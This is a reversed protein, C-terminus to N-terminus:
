FKLNVNFGFSRTSPLQGFEQGQEGNGSSFASEPDIHPANRYLMALNKAVFSINADQIFTNKLISKPLKYSLSLSRWKVYSADFVSSEDVSNGYVAQNYEKSSVVVNNAIYEPSEATGVNIVGEGVLGNERGLLTEELVGAYRGWANTMSHIDGGKKIDILTSLTFGKYNVTFNAGGTWDAQVNGLVRTGDAIVPTGNEYIIEGAASREFGRGVIDGYANGTRAELNVGWQGGLVLADLGGLSEVENNNKAFNLDIDFTLDNTKLVTMGLMLEVGQNRMEGVNDWTADFGSSASVNVPVLLDKSLQNYYTADLRLRNNFMRLDMGFELGTTTESKLNPNGLTNPSEILPVTGFPTDRFEYTRSLQYPTLAGTSGVKSWGGRVKLFSVKQATLDVMDSVVAGLTVSPYFFSNNEDSLLTTWDNRVTYDLFLYNKYAFQGFGFVSNIKQETKLNSVKPSVGSKVNALSYFGDLELQEAEGYMRAYKRSLHNVGLNVSFTLDENIDKNISTLFEANLENYRRMTESYFGEKWENSNKAKRVTEKQSYHDNSVKGKMLLWDNVKYALNFAGVVRDKSFGNLNTNLVWYPNNQFVTNWNLPTGGAITGEPSLPLNKYDKLAKFDVNRGSWIMQQVPNENNYGGTPLNDSEMRTYNFTISATLKENFTMSSNTGVNYKKLDTNPIIGKQDLMGMSLRFNSKEDGGAISVSNNYTVGTDYFDKVNDPQSVWPLPAGDVTYSNWQVFELGRDLAPGWSEDVGGDGTTGDIWEFYKSSSGQGYSNQFDPLIFTKEFTVGSNVTVGLGQKKGKGTKTTIVIVGNAARLGYLAAANPGKLVSVSAVDDPNLDAIGSPLDVGGGSGANGYSTNDIPVGDIIFLPQNNGTLSSAGRLVIRSSAGVSGSSSTVQVGAIRGSLSNSINSEKVKTLEEGKVSQISYGIAKKEKTIGLATVVVEDMGISETEMVVNIVTQSGVTIEQPVMGVFSFVLVDSASAELSYYGDINTSAGITTGKVVVSVGPMGLGDDASTVTGSIQKSQATVIQTGVLLLFVFLGILKKM